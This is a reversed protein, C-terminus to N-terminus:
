RVDEGIIKFFLFSAIWKCSVGVAIGILTDMLRLLPQRWADLPDIAAVLMVVATTVAALGIEDRRGLVMMILTGCVLLAALGWPTFPLLLLYLLCLAFSIGTAIMRGISASLSKARTDRFVYVTAVIAWLGGVLDSSAGHGFRSFVAAMIWYTILCALAMDVAYAIDWASLRDYKFPWM